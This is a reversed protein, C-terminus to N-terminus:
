IGPPASVSTRPSVDPPCPVHIFTRLVIVEGWDDADQQSGQEGGSSDDDESINPIVSACDEVDESADQMLSTADPMLFRGQSGNKLRPRVSHGITRIAAYVMDEDSAHVAVHWTDVAESVSHENVNTALVLKGNAWSPQLEVGEAKLRIALDSTLLVDYMETPRRSFQLLVLRQTLDEAKADGADADGPATGMLREIGSAWQLQVVTAAEQHDIVAAPENHPIYELVKEVNAGQDPVTAPQPTDEEPYHASGDNFSSDVKSNGTIRLCCPCNCPCGGCRM